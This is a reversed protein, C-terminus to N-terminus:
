FVKKSETSFCHNDMRERGKTQIDKVPAIIEDNCCNEGIVWSYPISKLSLILKGRTLLFTKHSHLWLVKSEDRYFITTLQERSRFNSRLIQNSISKACNFPGYNFFHRFDFISLFRQFTTGTGKEGEPRKHDITCFTWKTGKTM